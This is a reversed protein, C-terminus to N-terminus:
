ISFDILNFKLQILTFIDSYYRQWLLLLIFLISFNLFKISVHDFNSITEFYVTVFSHPNFCYYWSSFAIVWKHLPSNSQSKTWESNKFIILHLFSYLLLFCLTNLFWIISYSLYYCLCVILFILRFSFLLCLFFFVISFDLVYM